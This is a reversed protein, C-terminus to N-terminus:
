ARRWETLITRLVRQGDRVTRLNSTGHIRAYEFSPVEIVALGAASARLNLV